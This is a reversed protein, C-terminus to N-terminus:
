IAYSSYKLLFLFFYCRNKIQEPNDVGKLDVSEVGLPFFVGYVNFRAYSKLLDLSGSFTM